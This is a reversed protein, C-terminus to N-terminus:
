PVMRAPIRDEPRRHLLNERVRVHGIQLPRPPAVPQAAPHAPAPITTALAVKTLVHRSSTAALPQRQLVVARACPPSAHHGELLRVDHVHAVQDEVADMRCRGAAPADMAFQILTSSFVTPILLRVSRVDEAVPRRLEAYGARARVQEVHAVVQRARPTRGRSILAPFGFSTITLIVSGSFPERVVASMSRTSVGAYSSNVAQCSPTPGQDGGRDALPPELELWRRLSTSNADRRRARALIRRIEDGKGTSCRDRSERALNRVEAELFDIREPLAAFERQENFSLKRRAPPRDAGQLRGRVTTRSGRSRAASSGSARRRPRSPRQRLWDRYGRRVGPRATARSCSLARSPMTSSSAITASSCCPAAFEALQAELVELSELDLDNTPEDLVLV